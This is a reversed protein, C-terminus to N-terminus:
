SSNGSREDLEDTPVTDYGNDVWELMVNLRIELMAVQQSLVGIRELLKNVLKTADLKEEVM